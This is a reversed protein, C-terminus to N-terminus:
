GDGRVSVGDDLVARSARVAALPQVHNHGKQAELIPM